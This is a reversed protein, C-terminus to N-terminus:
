LNNVYFSGPLDKQPHPILFICHRFFQAICKHMAFNEYHVIYIKLDTM